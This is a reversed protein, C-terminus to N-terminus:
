LVKVIVISVNDPAGRALVTELLADAAEELSGRELEAAIEQDSVVRTLGDSALLFIDGSSADGGVVDISFTESVGVARTIVSSSEHVEAEEATLMGSDVLQQVLSHDRTVRAIMGDRLRYGRSDGCWFYRFDGGALALGVVTTGISRDSGNSRALDILADNTASLTEEVNVTLQDLDGDVGLKGLAEVVMASAVEGADHGGMGDAVAWLGRATEVLISDENIKRKLGVHTRSACEFRM